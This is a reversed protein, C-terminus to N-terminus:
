VLSIRGLLLRSSCHVFFLLLRMSFLLLRDGEGQGEEEEEGEMEGKMISSEWVGSLDFWFRSSLSEPLRFIEGEWIWTGDRGIYEKGVKVMGVEVNELCNPLQVASSM